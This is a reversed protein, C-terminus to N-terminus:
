EQKEFRASRSDEVTALFTVTRGDAFYFRVLTEGAIWGGESHSLVPWEPKPSTIMPGSMKRCIDAALDGALEPNGIM